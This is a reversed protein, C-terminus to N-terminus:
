GVIRTLASRIGAQVEALPGSADIVAFREPEARALSLYGERVREYFSAQESELRDAAGRKEARGMGVAAPADLLITLDPDIGDHVWEALTNIRELGLRRGYGQYARSADTFRDCVVWRGEALAPRIRNSLHLSRAAFFLLMEAVDPVPEDGHELLLSRIKEATPTGGPERTMLVRHGQEEILRALFAINTSKGVGEIGEVTIFRGRPM